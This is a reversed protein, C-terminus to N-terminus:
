FLGIAAFEAVQVQVQVRVQVPVRIHKPVVVSAPEIPLWRM